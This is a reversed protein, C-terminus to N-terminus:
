FTDGGGAINESHLLIGKFINYKSKALTTLKNYIRSLQSEDFTM